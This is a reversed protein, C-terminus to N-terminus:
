NDIRIEEKTKLPPECAFRLIYYRYIIGKNYTTNFKSLDVHM